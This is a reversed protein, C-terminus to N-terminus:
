LGGGPGRELVVIIWLWAWYGVYGLLMVLVFTLTGRPVFPQEEASPSSSASVPPDTTQDTM